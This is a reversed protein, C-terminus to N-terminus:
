SAICGPRRFDHAYAADTLRRIAKSLTEMAAM